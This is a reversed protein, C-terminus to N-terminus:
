SSAVPLDGPGSFVRDPSRLYTHDQMRCTTVPHLDDVTGVTAFGVGGGVFSEETLLDCNNYKKVSSSKLESKM